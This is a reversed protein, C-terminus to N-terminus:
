WNKINRGGGHKTNRAVVKDVQLSPNRYRNSRRSYGNIEHLKRTTGDTPFYEEHNPLGRFENIESSANDPCEMDIRGNVIDGHAALHRRNCVPCVFNYTGPKLDRADGPERM